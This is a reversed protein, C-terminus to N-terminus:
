QFHSDIPFHLIRCNKYLVKLFRVILKNVTDLCTCCAGKGKGRSNPPVSANHIGKERGEGVGKEAKVVCFIAFDLYCVDESDSYM